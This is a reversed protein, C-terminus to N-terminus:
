PVAPLPVPTLSPALGIAAPAPLNLPQKQLLCLPCFSPTPNHATCHLWAGKGESHQTRTPPSFFAALQVLYNPQLVRAVNQGRGRRGRFLAPKRCDILAHGVGPWAWKRALMASKSDCGAWGDRKNERSQSQSREKQGGEAERGGGLPRGGCDAHTLWKGALWGALQRDGVGERGGEWLWCLGFWRRVVAVRAQTGVKSAAVCRDFPQRQEAVGAVVARRSRADPRKWAGAMRLLTLELAVRVSQHGRDTWRCRSPQTLRTERRTKGCM